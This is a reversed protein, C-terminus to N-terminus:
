ISATYTQGAVMELTLGDVICAPAYIESPSVLIQSPLPSNQVLGGDVVIELTFTGARYITVQCSYSSDPDSLSANNFATLGAIDKGYIQRWTILDPVGILPSLWDDHHEYFAKINIDTGDRSTKILNSYIDRTTLSFFYTVGAIMEVPPSTISHSCESPAIEGPSVVMTWDSGSIKIGEHSIM